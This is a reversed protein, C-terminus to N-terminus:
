TAEGTALHTTPSLITPPPTAPPLEAKIADLLRDAYILLYAPALNSRVGQLLALMAEGEDVFIRFYVTQASVALGAQIIAYAKEVEGVAQYLRARVIALEVQWRILGHELAFKQQREFYPHFKRDLDSPINRKALRALVHGVCIPRSIHKALPILEM